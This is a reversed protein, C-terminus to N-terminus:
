MLLSVFNSALRPYAGRLEVTRYSSSDDGHMCTPYICCTSRSRNKKPSAFWRSTARTKQRTPVIGATDALCTPRAHRRVIGPLARGQAEDRAM